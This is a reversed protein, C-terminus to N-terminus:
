ESINSQIKTKTFITVLLSVIFLIFIAFIFGLITMIVPTMFSESFGMAQDIEADGMGRNEMEMIQNEKMMQVFETNIFSIYIYFFLNSIVSSIVGMLTGIGLGKGYSMFGNGNNKFEKHALVLLIGFIIYGIWGVFQNGTLGSFDTIILLIISVLANAIGWKLSISKINPQTSEEM